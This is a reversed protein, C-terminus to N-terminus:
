IVELLEKVTNHLDELSYPKTFFKDVHLEKENVESIAEQYATVVIIPTELNDGALRELLDIGSVGAIKLDMIVINPDIFKILDYGAEATFAVVVEYDRLTFFESITKCAEVEDDIYIIRGKSKRNKDLISM